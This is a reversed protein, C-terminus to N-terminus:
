NLAKGIYLKYVNLIHLRDQVNAVVVPLHAAVKIGLQQLLRAPGIGSLQLIQPSGNSGAALILEGGPALQATTMEDGTWVQAGSCRLGSDDREVVM